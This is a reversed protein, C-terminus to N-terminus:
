DIKRIIVRRNKMRGYVTANSAIPNSAGLGVAIFRSAPLGKSVFYNLVADAQEKTLRSADAPSARGDTYVEIRWRTSPYKKLENIINDM